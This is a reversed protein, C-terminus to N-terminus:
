VTQLEHQQQWQRQRVRGGGATVGRKGATAARIKHAIPGALRMPSFSMPAVVRSGLKQDGRLLLVSVADLENGVMRLLLLRRLAAFATSCGVPLSGM